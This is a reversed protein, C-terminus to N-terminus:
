VGGGIRTVPPRGLADAIRPLLAHLTPRLPDDVPLRPLREAVLEYIEEALDGGDYAPGLPPVAKLTTM